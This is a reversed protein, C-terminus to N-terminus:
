SCMHLQQRLDCTKHHEKCLHDRRQACTVLAAHSCPRSVMFRNVPWIAAKNAIMMTCVGGGVSRQMLWFFLLQRRNLGTDNDCQRGGTKLWAGAPPARQWGM